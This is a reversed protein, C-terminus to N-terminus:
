RHSGIRPFRRSLTRAILRLERPGTVRPLDVYRLIREPLPRSAQIELCWGVVTRLMREASFFDEWAKRAARGMAAADEERARLLEPIRDVDREAVRLSYMEWAPGTPPVWQDALIVPARGAMMAEFIRMTGPGRGSPCLVFLSDRVSEGYLKWGAEHEADTGYRTREISTTTDVLLGRPDSLALVRGRVPHNVGTGVFSFLSKEDTPEVDSPELFKTAGLTHHHVVFFGSRHRWRVYSSRHVCAYVGPVTGWPIDDESFVFTKEGYRRRWPHHRIRHALLGASMMGCFLILDADEPSTSLEAGGPDLAASREFQEKVFNGWRDHAPALSELLVRPPRVTGIDGDAMAALRSAM